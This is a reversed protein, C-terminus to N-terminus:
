VTDQHFVAREHYWCVSWCLSLSFWLFHLIWRSFATSPPLQQKPQRWWAHHWNNISQRVFINGHWNRTWVLWFIFLVLGTVLALSLTLFWWLHDTMITNRWPRNKNGTAHVFLALCSSLPCFYEQSLLLVRTAWWFVLNSRRDFSLISTIQCVLHQLIDLISSCNQRECSYKPGLTSVHSLSFYDLIKTVWM